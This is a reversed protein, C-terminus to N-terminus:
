NKPTTKKSMPMSDVLKFLKLINLSKYNKKVEGDYGIIQINFNNDLKRNTLLKIKRKHFEKINDEYKVKVKKYEENKYSNTHILLIRYKWKYKNLNM